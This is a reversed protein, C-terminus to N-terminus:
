VFVCPALSKEFGIEDDEVYRFQSVSFTTDNVFFEGVADSFCADIFITVHRARLQHLSKYVQTLPYARLKFSKTIGYKGTIETVKVEIPVDQRRYRNNISFSFAFQKSEGAPINELRFINSSDNYFIDKGEGEITVTAIVREATGKGINRVAVAIRTTEKLEIRRDNDGYSFTEASDDVITINDEIVLKPPIVVETKPPVIAQTEFTLPLPHTEFGWKEKVVIHFTVKGTEVNTDAEIPIEVTSSAGSALSGIQIAEPYILRNAGTFRYM